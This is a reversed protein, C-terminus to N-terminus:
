TSCNSSNQHIYVHKFGGGCNLYLVNGGGSLTKKHGKPFNETIIEGFIKKTTREREGKGRSNWNNFM